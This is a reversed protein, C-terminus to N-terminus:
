MPSLDMLVWREREEGSASQVEVMKKVTAVYKDKLRAHSVREPVHDGLKGAYKQNGDLTWFEYTRTRINLGYLICPVRVEEAMQLDMMSVLKLAASVKERSLEVDARSDPKPSRWRLNLSASSADLQELLARYKSTVRGKLEHLKNSLLDEQDQAQLLFIVESMAERLLADGLIDSFGSARMSIGFSGAFTGAVNLRTQQLIEAPIAGRLTPEGKCVQGLADVLEQFAGVFSSLNRAPIENDARDALDLVVNVAERNGGRAAKDIDSLDEVELPVSVVGLDSNSLPLWDRPVDNIGLAYTDDEGDNIAIKFCYVFGEEAQLFAQRLDLGKSAIANFRSKSLALLLFTVHEPSDEVSMALYKQGTQNRCLFLRPFDFFAFIEEIELAGLLTKKPM